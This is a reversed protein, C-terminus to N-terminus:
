LRNGDIAAPREHLLRGPPEDANVNRGLINARRRRLGTLRPRQAARSASVRPM